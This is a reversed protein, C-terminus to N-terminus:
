QHRFFAGKGIDNISEPLVINTIKPSSAFAREGIKELGNM